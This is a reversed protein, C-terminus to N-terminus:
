LIIWRQGSAVLVTFGNAITIPGVSLGNTNAAITANSTIYTSNLLILPTNATNAVTYAANAQTFAANAYIGTTNQSGYASNAQTFASNAQATNAQTNAQAYAANAQNFAAQLTIANAAYFGGAKSGTHVTIANLTTDVILEGSAGTISALNSTTYRRLQLTKAM